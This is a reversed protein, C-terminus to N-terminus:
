VGRRVKGASRRNGERREAVKKNRCHIREKIDATHVSNSLLLIKTETIDLSNGELANSSYTTEIRFYADLEKVEEPTLPRRETILAKNEDIRRLLPNIDM